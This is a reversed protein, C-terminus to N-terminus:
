RRRQKDEHNYFSELKFIGGPWQDEHANLLPIHIQKPKLSEFTRLWFLFTFDTKSLFDLCEVNSQYNKLGKSGKSGVTM